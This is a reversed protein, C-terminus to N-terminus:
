GGVSARLSAAEIFNRYASEEIDQVKCNQWMVLAHLRRFPRRGENLGFIRIVAEASAQIHHDAFRNPNIRGTGIDFEFYNEFEYGPEDPAVLSDEWQGLKINQCQDCCYYLNTWTFALNWFREDHKPRFHEISELSSADIPWADCFSCHGDTMERLDNLIWERATKGNHSYWTFQAAPNRQRLEVWQQNWIASKLQLVEPEASRKLKRM